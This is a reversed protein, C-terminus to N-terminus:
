SIEPSKRKHNPSRTFHLSINKGTEQFGTNIQLDEVIRYM